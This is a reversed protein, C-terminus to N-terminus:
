QQLQARVALLVGLFETRGAALLPEHTDARLGTGGGEAGASGPTWGRDLVGPIATRNGFKCNKPHCTLGDKQIAELMEWVDKVHQEATASFIIVDDIYCAAAPLVRLVSEMTHQFVAPANRMGFPMVRWKYQGDPGHFATKKRDEEKMPIQNFCQRLDLTSFVTAGQLKDFIEEVLQMPYHDPVTM